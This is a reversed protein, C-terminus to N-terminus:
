PALGARVADLAARNRLASAALGAGAHQPQLAAVNALALLEGTRPDLVVAMGGIAKRTTWRRDLAKEAM